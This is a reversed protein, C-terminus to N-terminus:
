VCICLLAVTRFDTTTQTVWGVASWPEWCYCHTFGWGVKGQRGQVQQTKLAGAGCRLPEATSRSIKTSVMAGGVCCFFCGGLADRVIGEDM